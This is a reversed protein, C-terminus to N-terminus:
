RTVYNNKMHQVAKEGSLKEKMGAIMKSFVEGLPRGMLLQGSAVQWSSPPLVDSLLPLYSLSLSCIVHRAAHVSPFCVRKKM